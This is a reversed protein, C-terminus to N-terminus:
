KAHQRQRTSHSSFARARWALSRARASPRRRTVRENEETLEVIRQEISRLVSAVHGANFKTMREIEEPGNGAAAHRLIETEDRSLRLYKLAIEARGVYEEYWGSEQRKRERVDDSTVPLDVGRPKRWRGLRDKRFSDAAPDAYAPIITGDSLTVQKFKQRLRGADKGHHSDKIARCKSEAEQKLVNSFERKLHAELKDAPLRSKRCALLTASLDSYLIPLLELRREACKTLKEVFDFILHSLGRRL